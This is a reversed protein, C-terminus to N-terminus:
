SPNIIKSTLLVLFFADIINLPFYILALTHCTFFAYWAFTIFRKPIHTSVPFNNYLTQKLPM